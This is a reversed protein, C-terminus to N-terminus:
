AGWVQCPPSSQSGPLGDLCNSRRHSVVWAYEDMFGQLRPFLDEVNTGTLKMYITDACVDLEGDEGWAIANREDVHVTTFFERNLWKRFVPKDLWDSLDVEGSKGDSFEIFITYGSRAEVREPVPHELQNM